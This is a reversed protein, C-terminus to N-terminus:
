GRIMQYIENYAQASRDWSFDTTMGHYQLQKFADRNNHYLDVAQRIVYAMDGANYDAFTFGNGAGCWAEYPHVTDKLGGTERVIPVTGYRMAIMQALGCPESKSPMLLLDAGAYIQMALDENYGRYLAMRGPLWQLKSEFFQEYAYDGSGLVVLQCHLSMIEDFAKCVLDLGKHSVLRSVIAIIPTDPEM